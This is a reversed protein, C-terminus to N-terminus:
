VGERMNFTALISALEREYPWRPSNSEPNQRRCTDPQPDSPSWRPTFLDTLGCSGRPRATKRMRQTTLHAFTRPPM